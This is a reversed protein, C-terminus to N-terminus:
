ANYKIQSYILADAGYSQLMAADNQNYFGVKEFIVRKINGLGGEPIYSAQIWNVLSNCISLQTNFLYKSIPM